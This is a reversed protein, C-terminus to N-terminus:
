PQASSRAARALVECFLCACRGASSTGDASGATVELAGIVGFVRGLLAVVFDECYLGLQLVGDGEEAPLDAGTFAVCNSLVSLYFSVTVMTKKQDNADIGPLLAMMAAGLEACARKQQAFADGNADDDMSVAGGMADDVPELGVLLM